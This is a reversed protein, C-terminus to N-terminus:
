EPSTAPRATRNLVAEFRDSLQSHMKHGAENMKMMAEDGGGYAHSYYNGDIGESCEKKFDMYDDLVDILRETKEAM